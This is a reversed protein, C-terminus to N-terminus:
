KSSTSAQRRYIEVSGDALTRVEVPLIQPLAALLADTDDTSFVSTVRLQGTTADAVRVPHRRYRSVEIGVEALPKDRFMLKGERWALAAPVDARVPASVAGNADVYSAQGAALRATPQGDPGDVKVSGSQVTVDVGDVSRRVDFHTGTVTVTAQGADVVFPRASDHVVDFMAEGELLSVNRQTASFSAAIRSRTNLVVTSGDPLAVTRREGPQTAAQIASPSDRHVAIWATGTGIVCLAIVIAGRWGAAHRRADRMAAPEALARLREPDVTGAARWLRELAAFEARHRADAALWAEMAARDEARMGPERALAFWSAAEDRILNDASM